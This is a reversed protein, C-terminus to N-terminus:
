RFGSDPHFGCFGGFFSLKRSSVREKKIIWRSKVNKEIGM